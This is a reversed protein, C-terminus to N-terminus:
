WSFCSSTAQCDAELVKQCSTCLMGCVASGASCPEADHCCSLSTCVAYLAPKIMMQQRPHWIQMHHVMDDQFNAVAGSLCICRHCSHGKSVWAWLRRRWLEGSPVRFSSRALDQALSSGLCSASRWRVPSQTQASLCAAMLVPVPAM